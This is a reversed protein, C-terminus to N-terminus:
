NLANFLGAQWGSLHFLCVDCFSQGYVVNSCLIAIVGRGRRVLANDTRRWGM